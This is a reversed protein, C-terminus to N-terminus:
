CVGIHGPVPAGEILNCHPLRATAAALGWAAILREKRFFRLFLHHLLPRSAVGLSRGKMAPCCSGRSAWSGLPDMRLENREIFYILIRLLVRSSPPVEAPSAVRKFFLNVLSRSPAWMADGEEGRDSFFHHSPNMGTQGNRWPERHSAQITTTSITTTCNETQTYSYPKGFFIYCFSRSERKKKADSSPPLIIYLNYILDARYKIYRIQEIFYHDAHEEENKKEKKKRKWGFRLSFLADRLIDDVTPSPNPSARRPMRIFFLLSPERLPEMSVTAYVYRFSITTRYTTHSCQNRGASRLSIGASRSSVNTKAPTHLQRVAMHPAGRDTGSSLHTFFERCALIIHYIYPSDKKTRQLTGGGKKSFFFYLVNKQTHEAEEAETRLFSSMYVRRLCCRTSRGSRIRTAGKNILILVDSFRM